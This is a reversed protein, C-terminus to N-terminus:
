EQGCEVPCDSDCLIPLRDGTSGSDKPPGVRQALARAGLSLYRVETMELREALPWAFTTLHSQRFREAAKATVETEEENGRVRAYAEKLCLYGIFGAEVTIHNSAEELYLGEGAEEPPM